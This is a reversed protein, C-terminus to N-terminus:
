PEGGRHIQQHRLLASSVTFGKGCDACAYPREGTHIRRHQILHASQRFSDGCDACAYPREGTHVRHHRLLASRWLFSKGCESCEFPREGTHFRRHQILHSSVTFSKGCETCGYPREGMHFRQHQILASSVTFSKGCESCEYPKEGTHVRQHKMLESSQSFSKGCEACEYPKEGTHVRQHRTLASSVSFSKGCDSCEYPKEGTHVRQHQVLQSNGSFSKGCEACKYPKEGTHTVQHRILKSSMSFSKGCESCEYPREGTHIRQHQILHSRQRFSEGCEACSFPKEGTHIRRHQVLNSSVRFSKGCDGCITLRGVSPNRQQIIDPLRRFSKGRLTVQSQRKGLPPRQVRESRRPLVPDQAPSQSSNEKSCGSLLGEPEVLGAIGQHANEEKKSVIGDEAACTGSLVTKGEYAHLHSFWLEEKQDMHSIMELEAGPPRSRASPSRCEPVLSEGSLLSGLEVPRAAPLVPSGLVGVAGSGTLARVAGPFHICSREARGAGGEAASGPAGHPPPGSDRSSPPRWHRAAGERGCAVSFPPTPPQSPAPGMGRSPEAATGGALDPGERLRRQQRIRKSSVSFREGCEYPRRGHPSDPAPHSAVAAPPEGQLRLTERPTGTSHLAEARGTQAPEETDPSCCVGVEPPLVSGEDCFSLSYSVIAALAKPPVTLSSSGGLDRPCLHPRQFGTRPSLLQIVSVDKSFAADGRGPVRHKM